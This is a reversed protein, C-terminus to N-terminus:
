CAPSQPLEGAEAMRHIAVAAELGEKAAESMTAPSLADGVLFVKAVKPELALMLSENPRAGLAAVFTDLPGVDTIQRSGDPMLRLFSVRDPYLRRVKSGVYRRVKYRALERRLLYRRAPGMDAGINLGLEIICVEHGASALHLAVETGLNGGGLVAVRKGVKAKGALVDRASVVPASGVGPLQPMLPESGTAVIVAQPQYRCVVSEDAKVGFNIKVNEMAGLAREYFRVLEMMEAKGPPVSALKLQGGISDSAELVTVDHGLRGLTYAAELGGIGAGVIVVRAPNTAPRLNMFEHEKGTTPNVTCTIPMDRLVRDICGQNCGICPRILEEKGIRAYSAWRPEAIFARGVAVLDVDALVQEADAPTRIRGVAAVPVSVAQKILKAADLHTGPPMPLPPVVYHPTEYVGGTVSIIDVGADELIKAIEAADAPTLGGPVHDNGSLRLGIIKEPGIAQRIARILEVAFRCRGALDGGYHDTRRNCYPSLFQHVLYEHGGHVEVGDFGAAVVRQAAQAFATIIAEIEILTMERPTVKSTPGRLASPAIAPNVLRPHANRGGHILQVIAAPGHRKITQALQALEEDGGPGHIMFHHSIVKGSPHVCAAEVVMLGPGGRARAEYYAMMKPTVRGSADAYNTGMSPIVIRNPITVGRVELPTFIRKYSAM